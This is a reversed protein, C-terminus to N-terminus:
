FRPKGWNRYEKWVEARIPKDWQSIARALSIQRGKEKDFNHDKPHVISCGDNLIVGAESSITCMTSRPETESIKTNHQFKVFLKLGNINLIM